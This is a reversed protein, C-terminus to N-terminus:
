PLSECALGDRDRDLQHPDSPDLEYFLQATRQDPFDACNYADRPSSRGQNVVAVMVMVAILLAVAAWLLRRM